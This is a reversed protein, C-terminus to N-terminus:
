NYINKLKNYSTLINFKSKKMLDFAMDYNIVKSTQYVAILKQAWKSPSDILSLRSILPKIVDAEETITDTIVAPLGAAQTEMLVLPLGEFFSPLVFVDMAEQMLRPVDFRWGAFIVREKLGLRVVKDNIEPRLPGDGV